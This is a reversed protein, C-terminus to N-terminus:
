ISKKEFTPSETSQLLERLEDWDQKTEAGFIKANDLQCLSIAETFDLEEHYLKYYAGGILQYGEAVTM